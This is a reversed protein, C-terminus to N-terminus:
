LTEPVRKIDVTTGPIARAGEAAAEAMAYVHGYTSYFLVLIRM